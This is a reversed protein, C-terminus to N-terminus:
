SWRYANIEPIALAGWTSIDTANYMLDFLDKRFVGSIAIEIAQDSDSIPFAYDLAIAKIANQGSTHSFVRDGNSPATIPTAITVLHSVPDVSSVTNSAQAGIDIVDGAAWPCNRSYFTTTTTAGLTTDVRGIRAPLWYYQTAGAGTIQYLFSGPVVLPSNAQIVAGGAPKVLLELSKLIEPIDGSYPTRFISGWRRVSM